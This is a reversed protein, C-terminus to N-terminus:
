IKGFRTKAAATCSTKADGALADCKEIAVKYDADRKADGATAEAQGVEKGMRADALAKTETAKAEQVCVDKVNGAKDDCKEKAVAYASEAKAVMLQTRDAPKGTYGFELEALAVKEKGKAEEVCIDKANGSRSSCAAKDSKADAEIRTKGAQYDAKSLNAAQAFPLAMMAAAVLTAKLYFTPNM